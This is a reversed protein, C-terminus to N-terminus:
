LPQHITKILPTFLNGHMHWTQNWVASPFLPTSHSTVLKQWQAHTKFPAGRDSMEAADLFGLYILIVPYGLETLKWSWTFRNSMQYNWDRSLNWSLGTEGALALNADQICAGIRAHNRRAAFTVPAALPSRGSEEKMLEEDHAKAEILLLGPKGIITCTSAIDWNPTRSTADGVALWWDLLRARKDASLLRHATHLQAEETDTLGQPMWNDDPSVTGFPAILQTLRAAIDAPTGHTLLHCRPKSGRQANAPLTKLLPNM